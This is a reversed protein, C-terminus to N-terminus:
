WWSVLGCGWGLGLSQKQGEKLVVSGLHVAQCCPFSHRRAAERSCVRTARCLSPGPMAPDGEEM